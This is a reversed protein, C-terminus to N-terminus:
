FFHICPQSDTRARPCKLHALTLVTERPKELEEALTTIATAPHHHAHPKLLQCGKQKRCRCNFIGYFNFKM